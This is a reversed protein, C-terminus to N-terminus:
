AKVHFSVFSESKMIQFFHTENQSYQKSSSKLVSFCSLSIKVSKTKLIISSVNFTFDQRLRLTRKLQSSRHCFSLLSELQICGRLMIRKVHSAFHKEIKSIQIDKLNLNLSSQRRSPSRQRYIYRLLHLFTQNHFAKMKFLFIAFCSLKLCFFILFIIRKIGLLFVLQLIRSSQTFKEVKSLKIESVRTAVHKATSAVPSSPLPLEPQPAEVQELSPELPLLM